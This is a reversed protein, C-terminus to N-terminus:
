GAARPAPAAAQELDTSILGACAPRPWPGSSRVAPIAAPGCFSAAARGRPRCAPRPACASRRHPIRPARARSSPARCRRRAGRRRAPRRRPWASPASLACPLHVPHSRIWLARRLHRAGCASPSRPRLAAAQDGDDALGVDALRRQEVRQHPLLDADGRALRLGRAMADRADAGDAGVCNTKTSVGPKWVRCALASFRESLLVTSPATAIDVQDQEHDLGAAERRGVGLHQRQEALVDRRQQDGVLEVVTCRRASM